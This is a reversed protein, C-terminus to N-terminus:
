CWTNSFSLSINDYALRNALWHKKTTKTNNKKIPEQIVAVPVSWASELPSSCVAEGEGQKLDAGPANM